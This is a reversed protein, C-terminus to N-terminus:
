FTKKGSFTLSQEKIVSQRQYQDEVSRCPVALTSLLTRDKPHPIPGMRQLAWTGAAGVANRLAVRWVSLERPPATDGPSESSLIM